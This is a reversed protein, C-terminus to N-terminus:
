PGAGNLHLLVYTNKDFQGTLVPALARWRPEDLRTFDAKDMVLWAPGHILALDAPAQTFLPVRDCEVNVMFKIAKADKGLGHLVLPAPQQRILAHAERSFTRTDYLSRELPEVVLIYSSWVALVAGFAPGVPHLRWKALMGIIFVQLGILLGLLGQFHELQAGFRHRAVLLAGILLGPTVTWLGLMLGRLGKFLHGDPRHFPYAAIIAVMPMMPLVYRAKKAEPISLGLMVILGAAICALLLPWGGDGTRRGNLLVALLALLALPYALAYNGVSSTFYYWVSSSGERGDMRGLFQMRIVDQLFTEGGSLKALLLLLGVCAALLALALLGVSFLPRWQRNLLYYSCLVGTPIVLGIPGRIAFGLLLLLLVWPLRRPSSFHDHAYGLYFVALTVAALMQDLSVSRTESIFTSSLLLLAISLLAWRRSYPATLRYVLAVIAASAIATPLWASFSTVRGLPLSLLWTLLTSTSLYDAYPQGYTTPFFGPGHRLMEQAFLVFRSDFGIIAQDWNGAIFLLLALLGIGWSQRRLLRKDM